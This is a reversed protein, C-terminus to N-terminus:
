YLDLLILQKLESLHEQSQDVALWLVNELVSPIADQWALM